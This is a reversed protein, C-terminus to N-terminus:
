DIDGASLSRLLILLTNEQKPSLTFLERNGAAKINYSDLAYHLKKEIERARDRGAVQIAELTESAVPLVNQESDRRALDNTIGIKYWTTGDSLSWKKFYLWHDENPEHDSFEARLKLMLEADIENSTFPTECLQSEELAGRLEAVFNTINSLNSDFLEDWYQYQYKAKPDIEGSKLYINDYFYECFDIRTKSFGWTQYYKELIRELIPVSKYAIQGIEDKPDEARVKYMTVVHDFGYFNMFADDLNNAATAKILIEKKISTSVKDRDEREDRPVWIEKVAESIDALRGISALTETDLM